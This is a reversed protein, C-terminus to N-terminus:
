QQDARLCDRVYAAYKEEGTLRYLAGAGALLSWNRKHVEHTYGGAMDEPTPVLFDEGMAADTQEQTAALTEAFLPPYDSQANVSLVGLFFCIFLLRYGMM